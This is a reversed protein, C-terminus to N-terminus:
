LYFFSRKLVLHLKENILSDTFSLRRFGRRYFYQYKRKDRAKVEPKSHWYKGNCEFIVLKGFDVYDPVYKGIRAQARIDFGMAVLLEGLAVEPKSIKWSGMIARRAHEYKSDGNWIDVRGKELMARAAVGKVPDAWRRKSADSLKQIYEVSRCRKKAAKRYNLLAEESRRLGTNGHVKNKSM